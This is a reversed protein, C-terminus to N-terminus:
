KALSPSWNCFSQPWDASLNLRPHFIRNATRGFKYPRQPDVVSDGYSLQISCRNGLRVKKGRLIVKVQWIKHCACERPMDVFVDPAPMVPVTRM